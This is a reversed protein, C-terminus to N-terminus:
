DGSRLADAACSEIDALYEEVHPAKGELYRNRAARYEESTLMHYAQRPSLALFAGGDHILTELEDLQEKLIKSLM